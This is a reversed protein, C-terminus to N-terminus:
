LIIWLLTVIDRRHYALIQAPEWRYRQVAHSVRSVYDWPVSMNGCVFSMEADPM